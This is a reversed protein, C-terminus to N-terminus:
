IDDKLQNLVYPSPVDIHWRVYSTYKNISIYSIILTMFYMMYYYEENHKMNATQGIFYANLTVLSAILMSCIFEEKWSPRSFIGAMYTRTKENTIVHKEYFKHLNVIEHDAEIFRRLLYIALINIFVFCMLSIM